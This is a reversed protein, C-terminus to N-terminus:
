MIYVTNSHPTIINVTMYGMAYRITQYFDEIHLSNVTNPMNNNSSTKSGNLHHLKVFALSGACCGVVM